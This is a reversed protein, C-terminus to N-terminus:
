YPLANKYDSLGKKSMSSNFSEALNNNIYDVKCDKDFKSRSWVHPYNKDLWEIAEPDKEQIKGLFYNFM